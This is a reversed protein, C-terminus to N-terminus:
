YHRRKRGDTETKQVDKKQEAVEPAAKANTMMPLIGALEVFSESGPRGRENKCNRWGHHLYTNM